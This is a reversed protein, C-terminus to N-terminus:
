SLLFSIISKFDNPYKLRFIYKKNKNWITIVINNANEIKEIIPAIHKHKIKLLNIVDNNNLSDKKM